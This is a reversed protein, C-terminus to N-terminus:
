MVKHQYTDRPPPFRSAFALLISSSPSSISTQIFHHLPLRPSQSFSLIPHEEYIRAFLKLYFISTAVNRMHWEHEKESVKRISASWRTSVSLHVIYPHTEVWHREFWQAAELTSSRDRYFWQCRQVGQFPNSCLFNFYKLSSQSRTVM